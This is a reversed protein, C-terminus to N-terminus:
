SRKVHKIVKRILYPFSWEVNYAVDIVEYHNTKNYTHIGVIHKEIGNVSIQKPYVRSFVIENFRENDFKIIKKFVLGQGYSLTCDQVPRIFYDGEIILHGASRAIPEDTILLRKQKKYGILYLNSNAKSGASNLTTFFLPTQIKADPFFPTTDVGPEEFLIHDEEWKYPFEVSKYVVVNGGRNSEPIMYITDNVEFVCPYSLHYPKKLCVKFRKCKGSDVSAVGIVGKGSFRDFLEAFLYTKGNKEFLFPDARWYRLSNPIFVFGEQDGSYLPTKHGARIAVGWIMGETFLPKIRNKIRDFLRM